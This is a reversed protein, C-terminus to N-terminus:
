VYFLSLNNSSLSNSNKVRLFFNLKDPIKKRLFDMFSYDNYRKSVTKLFDKLENWAVFFFSDAKRKEQDFKDQIIKSLFHSLLVLAMLSKRRKWKRVQMSELKYLTKVRRFQNEVGWRELYKKVLEKDSHTALRLSSLLTIPYKEKIPQKKIVLYKRKLDFKDSGSKKVFVEYRGLPLDKVSMVDGTDARCLLRTDKQRVIFRAKKDHLYRFLKEDDNGKDFAWIGKGNFCTLLEDLIEERVQPLFKSEADHYELRLLAENTGVGHLTFGNEPRRESGNFVKSIKEMGKKNLDAYKHVEDTLDYAVVTDKQLTKLFRSLIKEQVVKIFDVKELVKGFVEAQDEASKISDDKLHNLIVTGKKLIQIGLKKLTKGQPKTCGVAKIVSNYNNNIVNTVFKEM